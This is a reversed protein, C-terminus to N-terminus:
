TNIEEKTEEKIEVKDEKSIKRTKPKRVSKTSKLGEFSPCIDKNLCESCKPRVPACITQGFGVLLHNVTDWYEKPLWDELGHRTQEPTKTPKQLWKLRNSIRHVHTDVGIGELKNWASRLILFAMKPGIGPLALLDDLNDPVDGKFKDKLIKTTKKINKVKTRYFSVPYILEQLLDDETKLINDINCGHKKLKSMAADNVQDKTQSSLMLSILVQYRYVHGEAKKDGVADCGMTDVPAERESRMKEINKIHIKWNEPEWKEKKLDIEHNEAESSTRKEKKVKGKGRTKTSKVFYKSDEGIESMDKQDMGM